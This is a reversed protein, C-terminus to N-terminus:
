KESSKPKQLRTRLAAGYLALTKLSVHFHISFMYLEVILFLKQENKRHFIETSPPHDSQDTHPVHEAVHPPPVWDRVRVHM